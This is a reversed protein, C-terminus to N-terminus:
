GRRRALRILEAEQEPPLPAPATSGRLWERTDRCTVRPDTLTLGAARARETSVDMLSSRDGREPRYLPMEVFTLGAAEIIDAPVWVINEAGLVRLFESWTLRPGAM